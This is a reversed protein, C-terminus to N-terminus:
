RTRYPTGLPTRKVKHPLPHRSGQASPPGPPLGSIRTRKAAAWFGFHVLCCNICVTM